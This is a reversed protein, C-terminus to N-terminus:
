ETERELHPDYDSDSSDVLRNKPLIKDLMKQLMFETLSDTNLVMKAIMYGILNIHHEASPGVPKSEQEDKIKEPSQQMVRKMM